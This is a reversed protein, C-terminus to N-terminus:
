TAEQSRTHFVINVIKWGGSTKILQLYDVYDPSMVRATAITESVADVVVDSQAAPDAGGGDDTLAVMREKSVARLEDDPTTGDPNLIRKVLHDHLSSSMRSVDGTYWGDIYDRATAEVAAHESDAM